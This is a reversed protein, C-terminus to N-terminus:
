ELGLAKKALRDAEENYEVGSHGKVKVFYVKIEKSIEDYFAKYAKTGEKNTKWEGLPWHAIGAYDHFITINKYGNSAAYTMAMRAAYIEGAVNRMSSLEKDTTKEYLRDLVKGDKIIVAGSGFSDGGVYSGDVYAILDTETLSENEKKIDGTGEGLFLEAEEKTTFSKYVAGSFGNIAEKCSAWDTFIGTTRGKKVAYFKKPM